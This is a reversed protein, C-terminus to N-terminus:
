LRNPLQYAFQYNTQKVETFGTCPIIMRSELAKKVLTNIPASVLLLTTGANITDTVCIGNLVALEWVADCHGYAHASVDFLSQNEFLTYKNM